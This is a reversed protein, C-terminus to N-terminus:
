PLEQVIRAALRRAVDAKSMPEWHEIEGASVLAVTNAEGGMVGPRSVDNAVILDCGKKQLKARANAELDNTEAAFGVVLRPRREDRSLEALIDPNEVLRIPQPSAAGKKIKIPAVAEPRWDAVAAVLVAIDAPLAARCAELM